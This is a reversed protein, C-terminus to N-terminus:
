RAVMGVDIDAVIADQKAEDGVVGVADGLTVGGHGVPEAGFKSGCLCKAPEPRLLRKKGCLFTKGFSRNDAKLSDEEGSRNPTAM